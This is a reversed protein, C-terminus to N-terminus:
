KLRRLFATRSFPVLYKHGYIFGAGVAASRVLEPGYFYGAPIYFVGFTRAKYFDAIGLDDAGGRHLGADGVPELAGAPAPDGGFIRHQGPGCM